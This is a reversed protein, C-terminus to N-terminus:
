QQINGNPGLFGQSVFAEAPVFSLHQSLLEYINLIGLEAGGAYTPALFVAPHFPTHTTQKLISLIHKNGIADYTIM